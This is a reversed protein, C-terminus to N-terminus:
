VHYMLRASRTNLIQLPNNRIKSTDDVNFDLAINIRSQKRDILKRQSESGTCPPQSHGSVYNGNKSIKFNRVLEFNNEEL